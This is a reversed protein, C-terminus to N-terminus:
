LIEPRFSWRAATATVVSELADQAVAFAVVTLLVKASSASGDLMGDVRPPCGLDTVSVFVVGGAGADVLAKAHGMFPLDMSIQSAIESLAGCVADELSTGALPCPGV